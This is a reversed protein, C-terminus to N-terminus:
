ATGTLCPTISSTASTYQINIPENPSLSAMRTKLADASVSEGDALLAAWDGPKGEDDLFIAQQLDPCQDRVEGLMKVYDSTKFRRSAILGKCGSQKLAYSLENSRYAPNINVQIVGIKATAYQALIWESVNPAWVGVRDGKEFGRAILGRALRDVEANLQAYTWRIGQHPMVLAEREAFKKVTAELNDGITQNILPVDTRGKAIAPM